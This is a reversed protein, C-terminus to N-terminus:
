VEEELRLTAVTARIHEHVEGPPRSGDVRHLTGHEEYHAVLPETQERYVELRRRITDPRDDDRQILPSGDEDCVDPQRPPEFEVHYPHGKAQCVRRGSLRRVVEEDPVDILVAATLPRGLRELEADFARAQGSTRPFGDLLFGDDSSNIREVMLGIIVEDPVLEGRDMYGKAERGLETGERVASRLIEGTVFYELEFDEVIREGQTGKGAGPPGLLILNLEAV